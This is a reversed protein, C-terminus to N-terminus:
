FTRGFFTEKNYPESWLNVHAILSIDCFLSWNGFINHYYYLKKYMLYNKTINTSFNSSYLFFTNELICNSISEYYEEHM